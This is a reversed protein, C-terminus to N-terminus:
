RKRKSQWSLFRENTNEKLYLFEDCKKGCREHGGFFLDCMGCRECFGGPHSWRHLGMWCYSFRSYGAIWMKLWHFM